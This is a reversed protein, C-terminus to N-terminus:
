KYWKINENESEWKEIKELLKKGEEGNGNGFPDDDYSSFYQNNIYFNDGDKIM